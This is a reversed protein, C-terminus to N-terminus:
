QRFEPHAADLEERLRLIEMDKRNPPPTTRAARAAAQWKRWVTEPHHLQLRQRLSMTQRWSEIAPLNDICNQLRFRVGKDIEDFGNESLWSGFVSSWRAGTPRNTHVARMTENRGIGIARGIAVWKEFTEDIRLSKWAQRGREVVPANDNDLQVFSQTLQPPIVRERL